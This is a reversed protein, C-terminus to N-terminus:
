LSDSDFGSSGQPEPIARLRCNGAQAVWMGRDSNSIKPRLNHFKYTWSIICWNRLDEQHHDTTSPPPAPSQPITPSSARLPSSAAEGTAPCRTPLPLNLMLQWPCTYCSNDHAFKVLTTMPLNLLLQWPCTYCSNDIALIVLTTMPLNLLLQWPVVRGGIHKFSLLPSLAV